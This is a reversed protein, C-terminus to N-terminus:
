TGLVIRPMCYLLEHECCGAISTDNVSKGAYVTRGKLILIVAPRESGTCHLHGRPVRYVDLSHTFGALFSLAPSRLLSSEWSQFSVIFIFTSQSSYNRWHSPNRKWWKGEKKGREPDVYLNQSSVSTFLLLSPFRTIQHFLSFPFSFTHVDHYFILPFSLPLYPFLLSEPELSRTM